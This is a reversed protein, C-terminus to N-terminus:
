LQGCRGTVFSIEWRDCRECLLTKVNNCWTWQTVMIKQTGGGLPWRLHIKDRPPELTSDRIWFLLLSFTSFHSVVWVIKQQIARYLPHRLVTHWLLRLPEEVRLSPIACNHQPNPKPISASHWCWSIIVCQYNMDWDLFVQSVFPRQGYGTHSAVLYSRFFSQHKGGKPQQRRKFIIILKIIKMRM